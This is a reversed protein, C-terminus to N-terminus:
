RQTADPEQPPALLVGALRSPFHYELREDDRRLVLNPALATVHLRVSRGDRLTVEIRRRTPAETQPQTLVSSALRWHDVWRMLDDQSADEGGPELRWRGDEQRVGFTDLKFAVPQEEAAFLRHALLKSVDAPVAAALRSPLAFVQGGSRVYLEDTVANTIGFAVEHQDFRVRAWPRDLEFRGLDTDALTQPSEARAIDLVRALAIEDLRGAVPSQMRWQGRERALVIRMGTSREIEIRQVTALAAPVVRVATPEPAQPKFYLLAGAIAVLVLLAVNVLTRSAAIRM